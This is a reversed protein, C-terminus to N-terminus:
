PATGFEGVSFLQWRGPVGKLEHDGRDQFQIGSGAVLDVVTRSVLIEGPRAAAVVRAGIHVAIGGIEDGMVEVEGAHLGARVELGLLRVADRIASAARIARGPGDFTALVGDGTSNIKKGRFRELTLAVIKHHESLLQKWRRDGLRALHETSAVLDTFLVTAFVRDLSPPPLHGTLYEEIADLMPTPDGAFFLLDDGPIETIQAGPIHEATYRCRAYRGVAKSRSSSRIVAMTPATVAPLIPRLDAEITSRMRWARDAPNAALRFGRVFWDLFREDQALSPAVSIAEMLADAGEREHRQVEHEPQGEPYDEDRRMRVSVDCLVLAKTREPHTAAFPIATPVGLGLVAATDCGVNDLVAVMDEIAPEVMRGEGQSLADSAGVGRPDFWIHRSFSSLRELFRVLHPEDWMMDVPFVPARSVLIDVPGEGVVQYAVRAGSGLEAFRTKPGNM